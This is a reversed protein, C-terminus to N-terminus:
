RTSVFSTEVTGGEFGSKELVLRIQGEESILKIKGACTPCKVQIQSGVKLYVERALSRNECSKNPCKISIGKIM